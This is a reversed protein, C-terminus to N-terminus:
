LMDKWTLSLRRRLHMMLWAQITIILFRQLFSPVLAEIFESQVATAINTMCRFM